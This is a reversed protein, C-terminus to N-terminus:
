NWLGGSNQLELLLILIAVNNSPSFQDILGQLFKTAPLMSKSKVDVEPHMHLIFRLLPQWHKQAFARFRTRWRTITRRSIYPCVFGSKKEMAAVSVSLLCRRYKFCAKPFVSVVFRCNACRYRHVVISHYEKTISFIVKRSYHSHKHFRSKRCKKCIGPRNANNECSRNYKSLLKQIIIVSVGEPPIQILFPPEPRWVLRWKENWYVM